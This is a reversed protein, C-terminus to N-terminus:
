ASALAQNGPEIHLISGDQERVDAEVLRHDAPEHMANRLLCYLYRDFDYAGAVPLQQAMAFGKLWSDNAVDLRGEMWHLVSHALWYDANLRTPKKADMRDWWERTGVVDRRLYAVRYIFATHLEGSIDTASRHYIAEAEALALAAEENRGRDLYHSTAHLRLLLASRGDQIVHSARAIAQMDYDRPRLPSVLSSTVVSLARHLDAFPGGSLLQRIKAGDSYNNQTQFPVLNFLGTTLSIAGFLATMGHLQVPDDSASTLVLALTVTALLLNVAPGAAIMLIDCWVPQMADTPVVGVAGEQAFIATPKFAFSWKGERLRWQLPGAHFARLKMGLSLGMGAHGLEHTVVVVFILVLFEIYFFLGYSPIHNRFTWPTWWTVAAAGSIFGGYKAIRNLLKSTGDGQVPTGDFPKKNPDALKYVFLFILIGFAGFAPLIWLGHWGFRSIDPIAPVISVMHLACAAIGWFRGSRKGARIARSALAFFAGFLLAYLELKLEFSSQPTFPGPRHLTDFSGFIGLTLLVIAELSFIGRVLRVLWIM